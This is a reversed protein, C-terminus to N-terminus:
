KRHSTAQPSSIPTIPSLFSSDKWSEFNARAITSTHRQMPRTPQSSAPSREEKTEGKRIADSMSGPMIPTTSYLYLDEEDDGEKIASENQHRFGNGSAKSTEPLTPTPSHFFLGRAIPRTGKVPSLLQMASINAASKSTSVVTSSSKSKLAYNQYGIPKEIIKGSLRRNSARHSQHALLDRASTDEFEDEEDLPLQFTPPFQNIVVSQNRKTSNVAYNAQVSEDQFSVNKKASSVLTPQLSPLQKKQSETHAMFSCDQQSREPDESQYSNLINQKYQQYLAPQKLYPSLMNEKEAEEEAELEEDAINDNGHNLFANIHCEEDDDLEEPDAIPQYNNRPSHAFIPKNGIERLWHKRRSDSISGGFLPKMINEDFHIWQLFFYSATQIEQSTWSSQDFIMVSERQEGPKHTKSSLVIPPSSAETSTIAGNNSSTSPDSANGYPLDSTVAQTPSSIGLCDINSSKVQLIGEHETYRLQKPPLVENEKEDHGTSQEEIDQATHYLQSNSPMELSIADESESVSVSREERPGNRNHVEDNNVFFSHNTAAKKQATPLLVIGPSEDDISQYLVRNVPPKRLKQASENLLPPYINRNFTTTAIQQLQKVASGVRRQLPNSVLEPESTPSFYSPNALLRPLLMPLLVGSAISTIMIILLTTTILVPCHHLQLVQAWCLCGRVIGGLFLGNQESLTLDFSRMRQWKLLGAIGFTTIARASLVVVIMYVTYLKHFENHAFSWFSLGVYSFAFGEAIESLSAASLRTAVQAQKSLSHWAYHAMTVACVFVTLIGSIEICQALTYSLYGFLMVLATQHVPFSRLVQFHKMIVSLLLGTASGITVAGVLQVIICQLLKWMSFDVHDGSDLPKLSEFLVISLADNMVGEGFILAGMRPFVDIPILSLASVEDSGALVSAFLLSKQWSFQAIDASSNPFISWFYFAGLAILLFNVITGGIGFLMILHINQFFKKRRLSYGASFIIPPLIMFFFLDGNFVVVSGTIAKLIGGLVFGVICSFSSEHFWLSYGYQDKIIHLALASFVYIICISIALPIELSLFNQM